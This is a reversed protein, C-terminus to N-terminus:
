SDILDLIEFYMQMIEYLGLEISGINKKLIMSGSRNEKKLIEMRLEDIEEIHDLIEQALKKNM